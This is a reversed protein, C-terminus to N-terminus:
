RDSIEEEEDEEEEGSEEGLVNGGNDEGDDMDVLESLNDVTHTAGIGNRRYSGLNNRMENLASDLNADDIDVKHGCYTCIVPKQEVKDYAVSNAMIKYVEECFETESSVSTRDDGNEARGPNENVINADHSSVITNGMGEEDKELISVNVYGSVDFSGQCNDCLVELVNGDGVGADQTPQKCACEDCVVFHVDNDGCGRSESQRNECSDCLLGDIRDDGCAITEFRKNECSDCVVHDVSSDGAAKECSEPKSCECLKDDIRCLNDTSRSIQQDEPNYAGIGISAVNSSSCKDCLIDDTACDGLGLTRSQKEDLKCQVQCDSREWEIPSLSVTTHDVAAQCCSDVSDIVAFADGCSFDNRPITTQFGVSIRDDFGCGFMFSKDSTLVACGVEKDSVLVAQQTGRGIFVKDAVDEGFSADRYSPSCQVGSNSFYSCGVSVSKSEYLIEDHQSSKETQEVFCQMSANAFYKEAVGMGIAMDKTQKVDTETVVDRKDGYVLVDGVSADIFEPNITCTEVDCMVKSRQLPADSKVVENTIITESSREFQSPTEENRQSAATQENVREVSSENIVKRCYPCLNSSFDEKLEETQVPKNLRARHPSPRIIFTEDAESQFSIPSSLPSSTKSSHNSSMSQRASRKQKLTNLLQRKEEQLVALKVQLVALLKNENELRALRSLKPAIEKRINELIKFVDESMPYRFIPQLLKSTPSDSRFGSYIKTYNPEAHVPSQEIYGVKKSHEVTPSLDSNDDSLYKLCANEEALNLYSTSSEASDPREPMQASDNQQVLNVKVPAVNMESVVLPDETRVSLFDDDKAALDSFSASSLHIRPKAPRKKIM